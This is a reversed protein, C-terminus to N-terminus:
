VGSRHVRKLEVLLKEILTNAAIERMITQHDKTHIVVPKEVEVVKEVLKPIQVINPFRILDGLIM